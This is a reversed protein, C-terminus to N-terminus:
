IVAYSSASGVVRASLGLTAYSTSSAAPAKSRLDLSVVNLAWFTCHHNHSMVACLPEGLAACSWSNRPRSRSSRVRRLSSMWDDYSRRPLRDLDDLREGAEGGASLPAARAFVGSGPARAFAPTREDDLQRDLNWWFAREREGRVV